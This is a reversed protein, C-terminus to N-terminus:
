SSEGSLVIQGEDVRVATLRVPVPLDDTTLVPNMEEIQGELMSRVPGGPQVDHLRLHLERGDVIELACYATFSIPLIVVAKASIKILGDGLFVQVDRVQSPVKAQVFAQLGPEDVIADLTIQGGTLAPPKFGITASQGRLEIRAVTLGMPLAVNEAHLTLKEIQLSDPM